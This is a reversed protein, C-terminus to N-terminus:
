TKREVCCVRVKARKASGDSGDPRKKKMGKGKDLAEPKDHMVRDGMQGVMNGWLTQASGDPEKGGKTRQEASLM